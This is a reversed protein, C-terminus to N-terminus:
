KLYLNMPKPRRDFRKGAPLYILESESPIKMNKRTIENM